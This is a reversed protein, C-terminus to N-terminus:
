AVRAILLIPNVNANCNAESVTVPVSFSGVNNSWALKPSAGGTSVWFSAPLSNANTFSSMRALVVSASSLVVALDLQQGSVVPLAPDGLNIYVNSSAGLGTSTGVWLATRKGVTTDGTDYVAGIANASAPTSVYLNLDHLIGTRPVIVRVAFVFNSSVTFTDRALRPDYPAVLDSPLYGLGPVLQL